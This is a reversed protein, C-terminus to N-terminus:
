DRFNEYQLPVSLDAEKLFAIVSQLDDRKKGTVRLQDGQIATQVKLKKQEKIMKVIKKAMASEIGQQVTVPQTAKSLSTQPEGAVLCAIDIKRATLKHRLVDLMQKLQFTSEAVITIVSEKLEFKADIGKFDFRNGIERNAQDVANSLEHEDVQSVVDFSPM